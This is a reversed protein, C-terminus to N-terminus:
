QNILKQNIIKEQYESNLILLHLFCKILHRHNSTLKITSITLEPAILSTSVNNIISISKLMKFDSKPMFRTGLPMDM